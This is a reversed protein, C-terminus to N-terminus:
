RSPLTPPARPPSARGRSQPRPAHPRGRDGVRLGVDTALPLRRQSAPLPRTAHYQCLACLAADHLRVCQAGHHSELTSVAFPLDDQHPLAAATDATLQLVVFFAACARWAGTV